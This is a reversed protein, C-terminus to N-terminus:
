EVKRLTQKPSPLISVQAEVNARAARLLRDCAALHSGLADDYSLSSADLLLRRRVSIDSLDMACLSNIFINAAIQIDEAIEDVMGLEEAKKATVELGFLVLPRARAVGIQNAIRHLAMGPLIGMTDTRLSIRADPSVIRHDTTLMVALGLGTCAGNVITITPAHLRELRRLVREWKNVLDVNVVSEDVDDRASDSANRLSVLLIAKPGADEVSDCASNISDILSKTLTEAVNIDLRIITRDDIESISNFTAM